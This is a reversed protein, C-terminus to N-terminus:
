TSDGFQVLLRGDEVTVDYHDLPRPPPGRLVEGHWDFEASHCPCIYSNTSEVYRVRCGLHTCVTSLATFTSGDATVLYIQRDEKTTVWGTTTEVRATTLTPVGIPVDAANAVPIPDATGSTRRAPGALFVAAPLGLLGAIAAAITITARKLFTRRDVQDM